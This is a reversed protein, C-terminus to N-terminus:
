WRFSVGLKYLSGLRTSYQTPPRVGIAIAPVIYKLQKRVEPLGEYQIGRESQPDSREEDAGGLQAKAHRSSNPSIGDPSVDSQFAVTSSGPFLPSSETPEHDSM